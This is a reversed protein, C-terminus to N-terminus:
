KPSKQFCADFSSFIPGIKDLKLGNGDKSDTAVSPLFCNWHRLTTTLLLVKQFEASAFVGNLKQFYEFFWGHCCRLKLPLVQARFKGRQMSLQYAYYCLEKLTEKTAPHSGTFGLTIYACTLLRITAFNGAVMKVPRCLMKPIFLWQLVTRQIKNM